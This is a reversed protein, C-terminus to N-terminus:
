RPQQYAYAAAQTRNHVGLKAMIACVHTNATKASIYLATAIEADSHGAALLELVDRQRKTLGHPDASTDKRRRDPDRGRLHALRQQARRAATRAGLRRFTGLAAEVADVDGGLQAIAADYPCGRLAWQRAATCWDGNIEHDYPTAAVVDSGRRGGGPQAWRRVSGGLWEYAAGSVATAEAAICRAAEDDGALWAAEARAACVSLGLMSGTACELAEDLLPCVPEEGRRARILAVTILPAIRHEPTLGRQTLVHEAGLVASAWDGRALGTLAQLGVVMTHFMGLDHHDLHAAAHSLHHEARDFEGRAVAFMGLLAGLMGCHEELGPTAAAEAWVKEADDWGADSCFVATLAAYGRACVLVTPDGFRSGLAEARAAYRACAPDVGLAAFHALTILSRALQPSPGLDELLQVSAHAAQIAEAPRGLPLLLQSLRRLNEAQRHPDHLAHRLALAERWSSVAADAEGILYSSFAHRELWTVKHEDPVTDAHRLALAYLEAAQRNAGGAAAHEAAAPGYGIVADTDGAQEAHFALAALTDPDIPPESLVTLARKHLVRRQYDPIQALTARRALEHPFGVTDATAFLVGADLCEGLTATAGPSVAELLAPHARPGCIAAVQATERGAASLRALRGRVAESVSCPLRGDNLAEPGAALMETVFFANGGTLRHLASANIGSGAALAAVAAASLRALALRTLSACTAVDGLLVALPHTPGIQDDRYSALLLIPLTDIRRAVYRLLDLAPGDAWHLDEIVWVAPNGDRVVGVLGAYVAETDGADIGARISAAQDAPLDALMDIFPGLPRPTASGDCWGRLVRTGPDLGSLFRAIVATKGVGAEGRLLVVQGRGRTTARHCRHLAALAPERELLRGM